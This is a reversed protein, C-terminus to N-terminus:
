PEPICKCRESNSPSFLAKWLASSGYLKDGVAFLKMAPSSCWAASIVATVLWVMLEYLRSTGPKSAGTWIEHARLLRLPSMRTGIGFRPLSEAVRMSYREGSGAHLGYRANETMKAAPIRPMSCPYSSGASASAFKNSISSAASSFIPM